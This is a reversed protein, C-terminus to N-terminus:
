TEEGRHKRRRPKKRPTWLDLSAAELEPDVDARTGAMKAAYATIAEHLRAKRQQGLRSEGAPTM